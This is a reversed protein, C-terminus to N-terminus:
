PPPPPPPSHYPRPLTYDKSYSSAFPVFSDTFAVTSDTTKAVFSGSSITGSGIKGSGSLRLTVSNSNNYVIPTSGNGGIDNSGIELDVIVHNDNNPITIVGTFSSTVEIKQVPLAYSNGAVSSVDGGSTLNIKSLGEASM